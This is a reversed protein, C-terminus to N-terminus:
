KGSGKSKLAYQTARLEDHLKQIELTLNVNTDMLKLVKTQLNMVEYTTEALKNETSKFRDNIDESTPCAADHNGKLVEINFVNKDDLFTCGSKPRTLQPLVVKAQIVLLITVLVWQCDAILDM